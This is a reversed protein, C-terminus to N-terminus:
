RSARSVQTEAHRSPIGAGPQYPDDVLVRVPDRQIDALQTASLALLVTPRGVHPRNAWPTTSDIRVLGQGSRQFMAWNRGVSSSVQLVLRATLRPGPHRDPPLRRVEAAVRTAASPTTSRAPSARAAIAPCRRPLATAGGSAASTVSRASLCAFASRAATWRREPTAGRNPSRLAPVAAPPASPSRSLSSSLRDVM